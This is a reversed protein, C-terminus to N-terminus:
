DDGPREAHDIVLLEVPAKGPELKLGLQERLATFIDPTDPPLTIADNSSLTQHEDPAWRLSLNFNEARGTRDIVKRDFVRSLAEALRAMSVEHAELHNMGLGVSGCARPDLPITNQVRVCSGETTVQLGATLTKGTKGVALFYVPQEKTEFHLKLSFREALLAQTMLLLRDEGPDAIAKAQISFYESRVWAPGGSVQFSQVRWAFATLTKLTARSIEFRGGPHALMFSESDAASRKISAVEFTPADCYLAVVWAIAILARM